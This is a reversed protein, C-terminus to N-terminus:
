ICAHVVHISILVYKCLGVNSSLFFLLSNYCLYMHVTLLDYSMCLVYVLLMIHITLVVYKSFSGQSAAYSESNSM